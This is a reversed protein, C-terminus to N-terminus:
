SVITRKASVYDVLIYEGLREPTAFFARGRNIRAMQEVFASLMEGRDLMFTNITIGERTCRQVERLTEQITRYTPPYSFEAHVGEMHATPEGDTIVIIQKNGGKHRGLLRRALMFGAHMNTGYNSENSMLTPLQEMAFERAMLSFGIVHLTDRPFQTKILSNLALAVKKAALFCGRYIMSRSMDLMVVTAAQTQLETRYVAFDRPELQVPVGIGRREVSNMLTERLDLLFPDGFEYPKSDDGRDGGTGRRNVEHRGVRDRKLHTFVDRLAKNGIKRIARATLDLQEGDRELYGAEELRRTIEKLRELQEAAQEGLLQELQAADIKELDNPDRVQRLQRELQELQQLEEMLKMAEDLNLSDDGRFAYRRRLDDMPSLEDLNMALQAMEMKLREDKLMSELMEQFQQRQGPAMSDMLSQAQAIQQRMQEILEDLSNIGPFNRGWKNMFSQFDPEGGQMRERLMSNLDRMMERMSQQQQPTLNQMAQQMGQLYPKLMQQRLMQMLEQFLRRAEPDMFDYDQLQRIRGAPDRPLQDLTKQNQAALKELTKQMGEPVEGRQVREKGDTLRRRIGDRETKLVEDLKQRVDDITSGLDYRDLQQQRRRRLQEMLDKLGPLQHGDPDKVGGQLMRRLASRVDGDSMLDDSMAELLDDADLDPLQQSGDWQSYRILM